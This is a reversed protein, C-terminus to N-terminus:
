QNNATPEDNEEPPNNVAKYGGTKKSGTHEILGQQKLEVISREVTSLSFGTASVIDATNCNPQKEICALVEQIKEQPPTTPKRKTKPYAPEQPIDNDIPKPSTEQLFATIKEAVQVQTKPDLRFTTPENEWPMKKLVVLDGKCSEISRYPVLVTATIRVFEEEGFLQELHRMSGLRTYKRNQLMRFETFNRQQLCYFIDDIPVLHVNNQEDVVDLKRVEQYVITVEKNLADELERRELLIYPILNFALNRCFVLFIHKSLVNFCGVEGIRMAYCKMIFSYGSAFEVGGEVLSVAVVVIWYLFIHNRHLKPYFVYYNAYLTALLLLGAFFEKTFSGLFPRLFANRSFFWLLAACCLINLLIPVAINKNKM